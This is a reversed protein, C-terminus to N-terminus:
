CRRGASSACAARAAPGRAGGQGALRGARGAHRLLRQARGQGGRGRAGDGPPSKGTGPPGLLHVVEHRDVFGLEALALIRNRDLSPQFAFDFGALTKVTSLRAMVLATKIRRNERLTLEEGLLAELAELPTVEGRELRRVTADLMELARPMKCGSWTASSVSSCRATSRGTMAPRGRRGPAGVADYFSSRAAPWGSAPAPWCSSRTPAHRRSRPRPLAQHRRTSAASTAAKSCPIRPSWGATRSSASRTPSCTCRWRRPPPHRRARQLLQRRRQGLGRAVGAARAQAGRPVAGAAVARAAAAGRRLRPSWGGPPPTCAPTPSRTSGTACSPTSTTSTGSRAPSSSTRRPHLPVPARGQGQDQGPLAPLGTPHFGYHRALDLLRPQLRRPGARGRGAGRDEDPRLPDRAARRGAGRLRRRPLAARDAPGPAPRLPGLDPPSHGLVLSFLWVIRTCARARRRVGGPLPRLRGPGAARAATEFRVEFAAGRPPRLERLADTVASYGGQYGREKLERWLRKGTLGPGPRRRARAPLPPVPRARAPTAAAPRLRPPELGRAIYKRVTKRDTGLQRAIASVSLGQRHLDLIMIVEGLKIVPRDGGAHLSLM